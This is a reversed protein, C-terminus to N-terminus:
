GAVRGVWGLVPTDRQVLQYQPRESRRPLHASGASQSGARSEALGFRVRCAIDAEVLRAMSTELEATRGDAPGCRRSVMVEYM